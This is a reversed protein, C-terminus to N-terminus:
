HTLLDFISKFFYHYYFLNPLCANIAGFLALWLGGSALPLLNFTRYVISMTFPNMRVVHKVEVSFVKVKSFIRFLAHSDLIKVKNLNSKRGVENKFFFFEETLSM